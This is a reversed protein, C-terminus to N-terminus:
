NTLFIMIVSWTRFGRFVCFLKICTYVNVLFVCVHTKPKELRRGNRDDTTRARLFKAPHGSAIRSTPNSTKSRRFISRVPSIAQQQQHTTNLTENSESNSFQQPSLFGTMETNAIKDFDQSKSRASLKRYSKSGWM